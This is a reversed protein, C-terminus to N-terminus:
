GSAAEMDRRKAHQQAIAACVMLQIQHFIMLPLVLPGVLAPPFIVSAMPVGSALSKKSGCFVVAIEQAKGFRLLRALATSLGLVVALLLACILALRLLDLAGIRSWLGSAVAASFAGYVVLLISGRDSWGLAKAHRAVVRGIWPRLAQGALFPALLQVAVGQLSALSVGGSSAGLTLAILLPSLFVGLVNSITAATVAAAVDGRAIATFAISSQVTSPLCCLVVLGPALAAPTIWAPLAALGLGLLPFAGFTIALVLLQLRWHTLGRRVEAAALRAGHLFFVLGVAFRTGWQLAEAAQGRAPVITALVMMLVILSLYLDPRLRALLAKM